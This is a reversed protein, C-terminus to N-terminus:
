KKRLYINGMASKLKIPVGGNNLKTVIKRTGSVNRMDDKNNINVDFNTYVTANTNINLDAKTNEPISVDIEGNASTISIPSNQSVKSFLINIYGTNTNATIPGTVNLMEISGTNTQAEVEATFGEISITGLNKADVTLNMSKPIELQVGKSQIYSKLDNIILTNGEKKISFGLGNTDDIGGPYIATLGKRKDYQRKNRRECSDCNSHNQLHHKRHKIFSLKLEKTDSAVIKITADAAVSVKKIGSLNHTYTQDQATVIASIFLLIFGIKKM